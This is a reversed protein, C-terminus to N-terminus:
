QWVSNCTLVGKGDDNLLLHRSQLFVNVCRESRMQGSLTEDDAYVVITEIVINSLWRGQNEAVVNALSSTIILGRQKRPSAM